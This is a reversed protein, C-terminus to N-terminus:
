TFRCGQPAWFITQQLYTTMTLPDIIYTVSNGIQIMFITTATFLRHWNWWVNVLLKLVCLDCFRMFYLWTTLRKASKPDASTFAAQLVNFFNVGARTAIRLYDNDSTQFYLVTEIKPITSISVLHETLDFPDLGLKARAHTFNWTTWTVVFSEGDGTFYL